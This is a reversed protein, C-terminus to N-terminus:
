LLERDKLYALPHKLRHITNGVEYLGLLVATMLVEVLNAEKAHALNSRFSSLLYGYEQRTTEMFHPKGLRKGTTALSVIKAARAIDSHEGARAILPKMGDLFGRSLNRNASEVCYDNFFTALADQELQRDEPEVKASHPLSLPTPPQVQTSSHLQDSLPPNDNGKKGTEGYNRFLISSNEQYGLCTHGAKVCRM